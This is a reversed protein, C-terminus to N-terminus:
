IHDSSCGGLEQRWWQADIDPCSMGAARYGSGSGPKPIQEDLFRPLGLAVAFEGLLALGAHSTIMDRTSELKFSLVTQEIM